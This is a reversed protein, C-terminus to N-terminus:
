PSEAAPGPGPLTRNLLLRVEIPEGGPTTPVLGKFDANTLAQGMTRVLEMQKFLDPNVEYNPLLKSFNTADAQINAVYNSTASIAEYVISAAQADANNTIQNEHSHALDVVQSERQQAEYVQAFIDKVQMPAISVVNCQGITIGLKEQDALQIVRLRVAEEFGAKDTYLIQDVGFHAATYLLANNLANQVLNSVGSLDLPANTGASFHFVARIPDNVQYYITARTHVINRDATIVYGDVGPNLTTGVGPPYQQTAEYTAEEAPTTKFWGATSEVSQIEKFPIKVVEDIPYPFSWHLGPGLLANPGTGVLRGFRLVVAKEQQEVQFIGSAFFVLVLAVMVFKVIAFSSRLAESLAQSGADDPTEPTASAASGRAHTSHDHEDSM